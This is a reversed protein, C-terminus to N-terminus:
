SGKGSADVYTIPTQPAPPRKVLRLGKLWLKAAEYHIGATVKLTMWGTRGLARLLSRDGLPQREGRFHAKLVPGSADHLAVGVTLADGPPTVHFSYRGAAPNFPSVYFEKACGQAIVSPAGAEGGGGDAQAVPVVYTKRQGFTNNVEYVILRIRDSADFGFYVTLPNFGYGLIRPYCLMSFRLDGDAFGAEVAVRAVYAAVPTGDGHDKDHLSFLNFRNYSFLRLRKAAEELRDCDFLVSFVSYRLRHRIPSVRAHVVTGLYLAERATM